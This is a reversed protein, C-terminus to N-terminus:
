SIDRGQEESQSAPNQGGLRARCALFDARVRNLVAREHEALAESETLWQSAQARHVSIVACHDTYETEVTAIWSAVWAEIVRDVATGTGEDLAGNLSEVFHRVQQLVLEPEPPPPMDFPFARWRDIETLRLYRPADRSSRRFPMGDEWTSRSGNGTPHRRFRRM